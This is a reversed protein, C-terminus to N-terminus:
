VRRRGAAAVRARVEAKEKRSMWIILWWYVVCALFDFAAVIIAVNSMSLTYGQFTWWPKICQPVAILSFQAHKGCRELGPHAAFSDRCTSGM